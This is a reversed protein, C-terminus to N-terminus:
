GGDCILTSAPSARASTPWRARARQRGSRRRPSSRFKWHARPTSSHSESVQAQGLGQAIVKAIHEYAQSWAARGRAGSKMSRPWRMSCPAGMVGLVAAARRIARPATGARVSPAGAAADPAPKGRVAEAGVDAHSAQDVPRGFFLRGCSRSCDSCTSISSRRWIIAHRSVRLFSAAICSITTDPETVGPSSRGLARSGALAEFGDRVIDVHHAFSAIAANICLSRAAGPPEQPVEAIAGLDTAPREAVFRPLARCHACIRTRCVGLLLEYLVAWRTSIAPGAEAALGRWLRSGYLPDRWSGTCRPITPTPRGPKATRGTPGAPLGEPVPKLSSRHDEDLSDIVM